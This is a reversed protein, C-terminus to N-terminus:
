MPGHSDFRTQTASINLRRQLVFATCHTISPLVVANSGTQDNSARTVHINVELSQGSLQRGADRMDMTNLQKAMPITGSSALDLGFFYRWRWNRETANASGALVQRMERWDDGTTCNIPAQEIQQGDLVHYYKEITRATQTDIANLSRRYVGRAVSATEISEPFSWLGLLNYGFGRSISATFTYSPQSGVGLSAIETWPLLITLGSSLIRQRLMEHLYVNRQRALQLRIGEYVTGADPVLDAFATEGLVASFAAAADAGTGNSVMGIDRVGAFNLTIELQQSPFMLDQDASLISHPLIEGLPISWDLAHPTGPLGVSFDQLVTYPDVRGKVLADPVAALRTGFQPKQGAGFEDDSTVYATAPNAPKARAATSEVAVGPVTSPQAASAHADSVCAANMVANYAQLHVQVNALMTGDVTRVMVGVIPPADVRLWNRATGATTAVAMKFELRSRSLNYSTNSPLRFTVQSPGDSIPFTAAQSVPKYEVYQYAPAQFSGSEPVLSRALAAGTANEEITDVEM